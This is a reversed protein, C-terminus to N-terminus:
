PVAFAGVGVLRALSAALDFDADANWAARGSAELRHGDRLATLLAHEGATLEHIEVHRQPRCVLLHTPGSDLDIRYDHEMSQQHANWIELVPYASAILAAAPHLPLSRDVLAEATFASLGALDLVPAAPAQAACHRSWELAAVDALYPLTSAAPFTAICSPLVDGYASLWGHRPPHAVIFRDAMVAFFADGVLRLTVPFTSELARRLSARVNNIHVTLGAENGVETAFSRAAADSDSTLLTAAFRRQFDLLANM